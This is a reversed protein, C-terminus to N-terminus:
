GTDRVRGRSVLEPLQNIAEEKTDLAVLTYVQMTLEMTSHRALTQATKPHVGSRALNTIFTHRLAHFDAVRDQSDHYPIGAEQLDARIMRAGVASRWMDFVNAGPVRASCHSRLDDALDNRLPLVDTRGSKSYSGEVTVTPPTRELDLHHVKLTKLENFRLGTELAM